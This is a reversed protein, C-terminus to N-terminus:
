RQGRGVLHRVCGFSDWATGLIVTPLLPVSNARALLGLARTPGAKGSRPRGAWTKLGGGAAPSKRLSTPSM